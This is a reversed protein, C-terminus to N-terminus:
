AIADIFARSTSVTGFYGGEQKIMSIAALHNARVTAAACDELLLCDYGRDTAERITSHVCVDTTIGTFVINRVGRGFLLLDLDTGHFAGSGAKDVIPEGPEPALEPVIEFGPEGRIMFRGLPGLTGIEAGGLRSRYRAVAPLDSLDRRKGQRTHMVHFGKARAASLVARIPAIATSMPSIDYGMAHFYGGESCFDRQMDIVMVVTNAPKLDGDYPFDYPDAPVSRPM